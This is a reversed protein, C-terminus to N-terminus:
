RGVGASTSDHPKHSRHEAALEVPSDPRDDGNGERIAGGEGGEPDVHADVGDLSQVPGYIPDAEQEQQTRGRRRDRVVEAPVNGIAGAAFSQDDRAEEEGGHIHRRERQEAVPRRDREDQDDHLAHDPCRRVREVPNEDRIEDRVTLVALM